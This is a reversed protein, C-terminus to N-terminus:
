MPGPTANQQQLRLRQQRIRQKEERWKAEEYRRLAAKIQPATLRLYSPLKTEPESVIHGPYADTLLLRNLRILDEGSISQPPMGQMQQMQMQQMDRLNALQWQTNRGLKVKAFRAKDYLPKDQIIRNLEDVLALKLAQFSSDPGTDAWQEDLLGQSFPDPWTYAQLQKWFAASFQGKLYRSVPDNAVKLKGIMGGAGNLDDVSLLMSNTKYDIGIIASQIQKVTLGKTQRLDTGRLDAYLTSGDTAPGSLTAGALNAGDLKARSLDAGTLDADQLKANKLDAGRLGAQSMQAHRLDADGWYAGQLKAHLILAGQLNAHALSANSLDANFFIAKELHAYDLVAGSLNANIFSAKALMAYQCQASNLDTDRLNAGTVSKLNDADGTSVKAYRFNAVPSYGVLNFAKSVWLGPRNDNAFPDAKLLLKSRQAEPMDDGNPLRLNDAPVSLYDRKVVPPSYIACASIFLFLAGCATLFAGSGFLRRTKLLKQQAELAKNDSGLSAVVMKRYAIGAWIPALLVILLVILFPARM